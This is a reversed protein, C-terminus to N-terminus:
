EPLVQRTRIATALEAVATLWETTQHEPQIGTQIQQGFEQLARCNAQVREDMLGSFTSIEPAHTRWLPITTNRLQMRFQELWIVPGAYSHLLLSGDSFGIEIRQPVPSDSGDDVAGVDHSCQVRVPVVDIVGRFSTFPHEPIASPAVEREMAAGALSGVARGLLDFTAYASRPATVVSAYTPPSSARRRRCEGVFARAPGLEAFHCNVAHIVKASLAEQRLERLLDARVPHEMLVHVGRRLLQATVLAATPPPLAVIAAGVQDPVEAVSTWLPVNQRAALRASRESGAALIGILEFSDTLKLLAPIYFAGYNSGCLVVTTANM